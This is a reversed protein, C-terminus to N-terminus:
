PTLMSSCNTRSSNSQQVLSGLLSSFLIAITLITTVDKVARIAIEKVLINSNSSISEYGISFILCNITESISFMRLNSSWLTECLSKSNTWILIIILPHNFNASTWKLASETGTAETKKPSTFSRWKAKAAPLDKSQLPSQKSVVAAVGYIKKPASSSKNITFIYDAHYLVIHGLREQTQHPKNPKALLALFM